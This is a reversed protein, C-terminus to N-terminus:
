LDVDENPVIALKYGRLDSAMIVFMYRGCIATHKHPIMNLFLALRPQEEVAGTIRRLAM